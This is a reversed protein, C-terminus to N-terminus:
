PSMTTKPRQTVNLPGLLARSQLSIQEKFGVEVTLEDKSIPEIVEDFFYLTDCDPNACYRGDPYGGDRLRVPRVLANITFIGVSKGSQKCTPCLDSQEKVIGEITCCSCSM